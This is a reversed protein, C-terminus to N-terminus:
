KKGQRWWCLCAMTLGALLLYCPILPPASTPETLNVEMASLGSAALLLLAIFKCLASRHLRRRVAKFGLESM